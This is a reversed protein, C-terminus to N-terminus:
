EKKWRGGYTVPPKADPGFVIEEASKEPEKGFCMFEVSQRWLENVYRRYNDEAKEIDTM